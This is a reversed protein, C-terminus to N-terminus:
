DGGHVHGRRPGARFKGAIDRVSNPELTIAYAGNDAGDWYGGPALVQFRAVCPCPGNAAPARSVLSLSATQGNPGTVRFAAGNLTSVEM